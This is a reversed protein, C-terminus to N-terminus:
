RVHISVGFNQTDFKLPYQEYDAWIVLIGSLGAQTIDVSNLAITVSGAPGSTLRDLDDYCFSQNETLTGGRTTPVTTALQLVNGVNDYARGQSWITTCM